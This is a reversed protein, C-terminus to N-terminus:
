YQMQPPFLSCEFFPQGSVQQSYAAAAAAAFLTKVITDKSSDKKKQSERTLRTHISSFFLGITRTVPECLCEHIKPATIM